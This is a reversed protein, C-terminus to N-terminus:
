EFGGHSGVDPLRSPRPPLQRSAFFPVEGLLVRRRVARHSRGSSVGRGSRVVGGRDGSERARLPGGGGLECGPRPGGGAAAAAGPGATAGSALRRTGGLYM